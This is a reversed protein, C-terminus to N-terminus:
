QKVLIRIMDGFGLWPSNHGIKMMPDLGGLFRLNINLICLILLVIHVPNRSPLESRMLVKGVLRHYRKCTAPVRYFFRDISEVSFGAKQVLKVLSCTRFDFLHATNIYQSIEGESCEFGLPAQPLEIFIEGGPKLITACHELVSIPDTLHELVHSFVILDFQYQDPNIERIDKPELKIHYKEWAKNISFESYELGKVKWGHKEFLALLSGDSSGIELMHKESTHSFHHEIYQYQSLARMQSFWSRLLYSLSSKQQAAYYGKEYYKRILEESPQVPLFYLECTKCFCVNLTQGFVTNKAAIISSDKKGCLPCENQDTNNKTKM